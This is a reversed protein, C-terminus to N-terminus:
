SNCAVRGIELTLSPRVSTSTFPSLNYKDSEDYILSNAEIFELTPIYSFLTDDEAEALRGLKGFYLSDIPRGKGLQSRIYKSYGSWVKYFLRLLERRAEKGAEDQDKPKLPKVHEEGNEDIQLLDNQQLLVPNKVCLRFVDTESLFAGPM